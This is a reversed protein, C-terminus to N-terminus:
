PSCRSSTAGSRSRGPRAAASERAFSGREAAAFNAVVRDFFGKVRPHGYGERLIAFTFFALRPVLAEDSLVDTLYTVPASFRRLVHTFGGWPAMARTSKRAHRAEGAPAWAEAGGMPGESRPRLTAGSPVMQADPVPPVTSREPSPPRDHTARDMRSAAASSRRSTSATLAVVAYAITAPASV